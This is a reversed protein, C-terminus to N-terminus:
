MSPTCSRPRTNLATHVWQLINWRSMPSISLHSQVGGAKYNDASRVGQLLAVAAARSEESLVYALVRRTIWRASILLGLSKFVLSLERILYAHAHKCIGATSISISVNELWWAIILLARAIKMKIDVRKAIIIARGQELSSRQCQSSRILMSVDLPFHM